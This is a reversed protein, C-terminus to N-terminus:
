DKYLNIRRQLEGGHKDALNEIEGALMPYNRGLNMYITALVDQCETLRKSQLIMIDVDVPVIDRKKHKELESEYIGYDVGQQAAVYNIFNAIVKHNKKKESVFHSGYRAVLDIFDGIKM